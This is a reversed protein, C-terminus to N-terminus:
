DFRTRGQLKTLDFSGPLCLPVIMQYSNSNCCIFLSFQALSVIFDSDLNIALQITSCFEKLSLLVFKQKLNVPFRNLRSAFLSPLAQLIALPPVDSHTEPCPFGTKSLFNLPCDFIVTIHYDPLDFFILATEDFPISNPLLKPNIMDALLVRTELSFDRLSVAMRQAFKAPYFLATSSRNTALTVYMTGSIPAPSEFNAVKEATLELRSVFTLGSDCVQYAFIVSDDVFYPRDAFGTFLREPIKTETDARTISFTGDGLIYSIRKLDLLRLVEIHRERDARFFLRRKAIALSQPVLSVYDTLERELSSFVMGNLESGIKVMGFRVDVVFLFGDIAARM